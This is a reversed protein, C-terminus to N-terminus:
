PPSVSLPPLTRITAPLFDGSRVQSGKHNAILLDLVVEFAGTADAVPAGGLSQLNLNWRYSQGPQVAIPSPLAGDSLLVQSCEGGIAM